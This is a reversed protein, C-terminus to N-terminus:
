KGKSKKRVTKAKVISKSKIKAKKKAATKKSVVKKVIPTKLVMKKVVPKGIISIIKDLKENISSLQIILEQNNNSVTTKGKDKGEFCDSCYIPKDGSPKFPVKCDKGCKACVASYMKKDKFSSRGRSRDNRGRSYGSKEKKEFCESCYVPKDGSPKFPVKCDKGCKDCVAKYMTFGNSSRNNRSNNM